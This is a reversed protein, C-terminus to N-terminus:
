SNQLLSYLRTSLEAVTSKLTEVVNEDIQRYPIQIGRKCAARLPGSRSHRMDTADVLVLDTDRLEPRDDKYHFFRVRLGNTALSTVDEKVEPAVNGSFFLVREFRGPPIHFAKKPTATSLAAPEQVVENQKLSLLRAIDREEIASEIIALTAARGKRFEDAIDALLGDNEIIKAFLSSQAVVKLGSLVRDRKAPTFGHDYLKVVKTLTADQFALLEARLPDSKGLIKGSSLGQTPARASQPIAAQTESQPASARNMEETFGQQTGSLVAREFADSQWTIQRNFVASTALEKLGSHAIIPYLSVFQAARSRHGVKESLALLRAMLPDDTLPSVASSDALYLMGAAFDSDASTGLRQMLTAATKDKASLELAPGVYDIATSVCISALPQSNLGNKAADQAAGILRDQSSTAEGPNRNREQMAVFVTQIGLRCCDAFRNLWGTVEVQHDLNFAIYAAFQLGSKDVSLLRSVIEVGDLELDSPTQAPDRPPQKARIYRGLLDENATDHTTGLVVEAAHGFALPIKVNGHHQLTKSLFHLSHLTEKLTTADAPTLGFTGLKALGSLKGIFNSTRRAHNFLEEAAKISSRIHKAGGYYNPDRGDVSAILPASMAFSCINALQISVLAIEPPIELQTSIRQTLRLLPQRMEPTLEARTAKEERAVPTALYSKVWANFQPLEAYPLVPEVTERPKGPFGMSPM